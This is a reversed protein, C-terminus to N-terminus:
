VISVVGWGRVCVCVCVCECEQMHVVVCVYM